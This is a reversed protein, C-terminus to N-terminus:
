RMVGFISEYGTLQLSLWRDTLFHEISTKVQKQRMVLLIEENKDMVRQM